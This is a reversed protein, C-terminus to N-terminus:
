SLLRQIVCRLTTANLGSFRWHSVYYHLRRSLSKTPLQARPYTFPCRCHIKMALPASCLLAYGPSALRLSARPPSRLRSSVLCLPMSKAIRYVCVCVLSCVFSRVVLLCVFSPVSPRVHPHVFSLNAKPFLAGSRRTKMMNCLFVIIFGASYMRRNACERQKRVRKSSRGRARVCIVLSESKYDCEIITLSSRPGLLGSVDRPNTSKSSM